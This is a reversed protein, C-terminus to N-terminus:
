SKKAGKQQPLDKKPDITERVIEKDAELVFGEFTVEHYLCIDFQKKDNVFLLKCTALDVHLVPYLVDTSRGDKAKATKETMRIYFPKFM